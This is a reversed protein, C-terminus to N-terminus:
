EVMKKVTTRVTGAHKGSGRLDSVSIFDKGDVFVAQHQQYQWQELLRKKLKHVAVIIAQTENNYSLLPVFLETVLEHGDLAAKAKEIYSEDIERDRLRARIDWEYWCARCDTTIEPEQEIPRQECGQIHFDLAFPDKQSRALIIIEAVEIIADLDNKM